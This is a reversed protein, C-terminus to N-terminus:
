SLSRSTNKKWSSNDTGRIGTPRLSFLCDGLNRKKNVSSRTFYNRFEFNDTEICWQVGLTREIPLVALDLNKVADARDSEPIQQLIERKNSIFKCLNFGGRSCMEKAQKVLNVAESVSAVSKLGDDVYFNRRLFEAADKGIEQENDDATRKLAYNSCGPSSAAGFLHVTMRYTQPEQNTDPNDGPWWLFRLFDRYEKSVKVQYFMAEIDTTFAVSEQRFRTLVGILKNTLDPGQLLYQNLSEGKYQSSCDFVVRIKKPKKPHYVGHHPIYWCKGPETTEENSPVQEAYGKKIMEKMFTVYDEKYTTDNKFRSKLQQLRFVALNRNNPLKIDDNKFPLPIEYHGDEGLHIGDSVKRLFNQDDISSYTPSININENFDLEFMKNITSPDIIEKVRNEPAFVINLQKESAIERTVIRNCSMQYSEFDLDNENLKSVPGIFGWGLLTKIAYPDNENGPIVEQPKIAKPCNSGILLGIDVNEQYRPLQTTLRELHQWREAMEPRPIEDRKSPIDDRCYVSKPLEIQTTKGLDEIILGAIKKTAIMETGHMTNLNLHVDIGNLGLKKSTDSKIFTGNSAPDLLAYVMIQHHPDKKHHLWVPVIMSSIRSENNDQNSKVANRVSVCNNITSGTSKPDKNPLESSTQTSCEKKNGSKTADHLLTPHKLQCVDCKKRTLCRRSVHGVRLCGFCLEKKRIFDMRESLKMEQFKQCNELVHNKACLTCKHVDPPSREKDTLSLPNVITSFNSSQENRKWKRIDQEKGENKRDGRKEEKIAYPSFVPNTAFTAEDKVFEVFDHFKVADKETLIENARRCWRAIAFNPLKSCIKKIVDESNLVEMHKLTKMAEEAQVLFDSFKLLGVGDGSDKITAWNLLREKYAYAVRYPHGFREKLVTRAKTYAEPSNLTVLGKIVERAEGSTFQNLYYLRQKPDEVKSEILSEFSNIFYPYDFYNGSFMPPQQKPLSNLVQQKALEVLLPGVSDPQDPKVDNSQSEYVNTEKEPIVQREEGKLVPPVTYTSVFEQANANLEFTAPVHRPIAEDPMASQLINENPMALWSYDSVDPIDEDDSTAEDGILDQKHTHVRTGLVEFRRQEQPPHTKQTTISKGQGRYQDFAQM